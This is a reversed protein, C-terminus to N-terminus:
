NDKKVAELEKTVEKAVIDIPAVVYGGSPSNAGSKQLEAVQVKIRTEMENVRKAQIKKLTRRGGGYFFVLGLFVIIYGYWALRSSAEFSKDLSCLKFPGTAFNTLLLTAFIGVVDYLRKISTPSAPVYAGPVPILLPRICSRALGALTRVFGM